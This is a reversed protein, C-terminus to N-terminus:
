HTYQHRSVRYPSFASCRSAQVVNQANVHSLNPANATNAQSCNAAHVNLNMTLQESQPDVDSQYIQDNPHTDNSM